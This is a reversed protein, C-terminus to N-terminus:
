PKPKPIVATPTSTKGAEVVVRQEERFMGTGVHHHDRLGVSTMEEVQLKM